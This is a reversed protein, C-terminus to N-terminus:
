LLVTGGIAGNFGDGSGDGGVGGQEKTQPGGTGAKIVFNVSQLAGDGGVAGLHSVQNNTDGNATLIEVTVRRSANLGISTDTLAWVGNNGVDLSDAVGNGASGPSVDWNTVDIGPVGPGVRGVGGDDFSNVPETEIGVGEVLGGVGVANIIGLVEELLGNLLNQSNSAVLRVPDGLSAPRQGTRGLVKGNSGCLVGLSIPVLNTALEEEALDVGPPVDELVVPGVRAETDNAFLQGGGREVVQGAGTNGVGGDSGARGNSSRRAAAGSGARGATLIGM